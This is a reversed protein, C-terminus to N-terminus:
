LIEVFLQWQRHEPNYNSIDKNFHCSVMKAPLQLFSGTCHTCEYRYRYLTGAPLSTLEGSATVQPLMGRLRWEPDKVASHEEGGYWCTITQDYSKVWSIVPSHEPVPKIQRHSAWVWYFDEAMKIDHPATHNRLRQAQNDRRLPIRPFPKINRGVDPTLHIWCQLVCLPYM